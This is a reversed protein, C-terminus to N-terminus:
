VHARGIKKTQQMVLLAIIEKLQENDTSPAFRAAFAADPLMSLRVGIVHSYTDDTSWAVIQFEDPPNEKAYLDDLALLSNDGFFFEGENSPYCQHAGDFIQVGVLGCSGPPFYVELHYLLGETIPVRKIVPSKQPTNAPVTVSPSYIM